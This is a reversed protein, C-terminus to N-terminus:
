MLLFSCKQARKVKLYSVKGKICVSSPQVKLDDNLNVKLTWSSKTSEMDLIERLNVTSKPVGYKQKLVPNFLLIHEDSPNRDLEDWKVKEANVNLYVFPRSVRYSSWTWDGSKKAVEVSKKSLYHFFQIKFKQGLDKAGKYTFGACSFDEECLKKANKPTMVGNLQPYELNYPISDLKGVFFNSPVNAAKKRQGKKEKTKKTQGEKLFVLLLLFLVLFGTKQSTKGVVSVM